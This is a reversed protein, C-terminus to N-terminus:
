EQKDPMMLPNQEMGAVGIVGKQPISQSGFMDQGMTQQPKSIFNNGLAQSATQGDEATALGEDIGSTAMGAPTMGGGSTELAEIRGEIGKIRGSMEGNGANGRASVRNVMGTVGGGGSGNNKPIATVGKAAQRAATSSAM